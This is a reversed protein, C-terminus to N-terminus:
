TQWRRTCSLPVRPIFSTAWARLTKETTTDNIKATARRGESAPAFGILDFIEAVTKPTMVLSAVILYTRM